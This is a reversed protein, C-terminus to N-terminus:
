ESGEYPEQLQDITVQSILRNVIWATSRDLTKALYELKEKETDTLRVAIIHRKREGTRV